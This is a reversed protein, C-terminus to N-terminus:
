PKIFISVISIAVAVAAIILAAIAIKNNTRAARASLTASAAAERAISNAESALRNAELTAAMQESRSAEALRASEHDKEALWRTASLKLPGTWELLRARVQNVDMKEFYRRWENAGGSM